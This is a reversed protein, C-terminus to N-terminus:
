LGRTTTRPVTGACRISSRAIACSGIRARRSLLFAHVRLDSVDGDHDFYGAADARLRPRSHRRGPDVDPHLGRARLAPLLTVRWDKHDRFRMEEDSFFQHHNLTHREYIARLGKVGVPRHMIYKHVAWEFLNTFLFTLPVTLWELAGINHMHAVYVYFAAAGM